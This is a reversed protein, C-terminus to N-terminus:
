FIRERDLENEPINSRKACIGCSFETSSENWERSGAFFIRSILSNGTGLIRNKTLGKGQTYVFLQPKVRWQTPVQLKGSHFVQISQILFFEPDKLRSWDCPPYKCDPDSQGFITNEQLDQNQTQVNQASGSLLGGTATLVLGFMLITTVSLKMGLGLLNSRCSGTIMMVRVLKLAIAIRINM